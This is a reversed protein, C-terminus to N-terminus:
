NKRASFIAILAFVMIAITATFGPSEKEESDNINEVTEKSNNEQEDVIDPENEEIIEEYDVFSDEDVYDESRYGFALVADEHAILSLNSENTVIDYVIAISNSFNTINNSYQSLTDIANKHAVDDFFQIAIKVNGDETRAYEPVDLGYYRDYKNEVPIEGMWRLGVNAPLDAATYDAPMSFIFTYDTAKKVYILDYSDLLGIQEGTTNEYFQLLVHKRETGNRLTVSENGNLNAGFVMPEPTYVEGGYNQFTYKDSDNTQDASAILTCSILVLFTIIIQNLGSKDRWM